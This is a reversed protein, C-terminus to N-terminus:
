AIVIGSAPPFLVFFFFYFHTVPGPSIHDCDDECIQLECTMTTMTTM